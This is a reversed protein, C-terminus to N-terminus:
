PCDGGAIVNILADIDGQDVNGDQNFDPDIGTPNAGGAVVNILYDIDGQDANGDQNLDPDCGGGLPPQCTPGTAFSFDYIFPTAVEACTISLRLNVPDGCVHSPSVNIIYPVSDNASGNANLNPYASSASTVTVTPSLASLTGVINTARAAGTNIVRARIQLNNEGPDIVGNSNGNPTTDVVSNSNNGGLVPVPPPTIVFNSNSIDFFINGIAEVKIRATTTSLSPLTVAAAGNNPVSNALIYPYTQGADTSLSIRVNACNIPSGSTGGVSWTVTRAGSWTVATNPSTITLGTVNAVTITTDGTAVGGGGAINDRVVVRFHLTRAVGPLIEGPAFTNNLLNILRPFIRIPSTSPAFVRMIPSVGNDVLPLPLAVAGNDREEWSYTLPNGDPDSAAATLAFPTNIPITYSAGASVTPPNNTTVSNTPCSLGAVFPQMLALSGQSFQPDSHAQLDNSGCIGAYAMITSGSGPEYAYTYSDGPGGNCNNFPHRGNFEHGIEHAVYDIVFADGVPPDFGSLGRGKNGNQCVTGITSIGGGAREFVHGVDYNASGIISDCQTQCIDRDNASGNNAYPDTAANTFVLNQNNAVLVLRVDLDIEYVQNVRNIATVIASQGAAQTGGFYATYEGTASIAARINRRSVVARETYAPAAPATGDDVTMCQWHRTNTLDSKYYSTVTSLDDFSYPDVYVAGGPSLIQAHFGHMTYDFRVSASPDDIGQGEFTKFNPFAAALAPEMIPSEVVKFRAWYGEPMPLTMILPHAIAGPTDELPATALLAYLADWNVKVAQYVNPRVCPRLAAVDPPVGPLFTFAGEPSTAQARASEVGLCLVLAAAALGGMSLRM